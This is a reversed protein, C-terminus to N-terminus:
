KGDYTIDDESVRRVPKERAQEEVAQVVLGPTRGIIFFGKGMEPAFGMDLLLAAIAGDVNLVIKKGKLEEIAKEMELALTLYKSVYGEKKCLAVLHATRPDQIKYVKHGFGYLVKKNELADKVFAAPKDVETFLCMAKEIAGGHYDGLALVGGAVATNLSNGTSAVFRTAMSSATGMGHDIVTTLMADFLAAEKKDPEKGSLLFFITKSFPWNGIMDSHKKGRIILDNETMKSVATKFEM